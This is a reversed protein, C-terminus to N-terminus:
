NSRRGDQRERSNPLIFQKRDQSSYLIQYVQHPGHFSVVKSGHRRGHELQPDGQHDQEAVGCSLEASSEIFTLLM